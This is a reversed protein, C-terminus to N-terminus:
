KEPNGGDEQGARGELCRGPTAPVPARRHTKLGEFLAPLLILGLGVLAPTSGLAFLAGLLGGVGAGAM